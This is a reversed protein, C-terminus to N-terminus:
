LYYYPDFEDNFDGMYEKIQKINKSLYKHLGKFYVCTVNDIVPEGLKQNSFSICGGDCISQAPCTNCGHAIISDIKYKHFNWMDRASQLELVDKDFATGPNTLCSKESNRGCFQISGDPEVEILAKGAGCYRTVCHAMRDRGDKLGRASGTLFQKLYIYLNEEQFGPNSFMYDLIEKSAELMELGNLETPSDKANVVDVARNVKVNNIGMSRLKNFNSRINKHNGKHLVMLASNLGLSNLEILRNIINAGAGRKDSKDIDFGDFSLGPSVKYKTFLSIWEDDILTGNTQIGCTVVKNYERALSHAIKLMQAIRKKGISLPEGGHFILELRDQDAQNHEEKGPFKVDGHHTESFWRNIIDTYTELSMVEGSYHDKNFVYCYSCRLNCGRTVKLIIQRTNQFM